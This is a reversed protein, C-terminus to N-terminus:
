SFVIPRAEFITIYKQKTYLFTCLKYLIDFICTLNKKMLKDDFTYKNQSLILLKGRM